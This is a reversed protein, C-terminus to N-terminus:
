TLSFRSNKHSLNSQFRVHSRPACSLSATVSALRSKGTLKFNLQSRASDGTACPSMGKGLVPPVRARTSLSILVSMAAKFFFSTPFPTGILRKYPLVGGGGLTQMLHVNVCAAPVHFQQVKSGKTISTFLNIFYIKHCFDPM